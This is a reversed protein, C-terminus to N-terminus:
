SEKSVSAINNALAIMRNRKEERVKEETGTDILKETIVRPNSGQVQELEIIDLMDFDSTSDQGPTITKAKNSDFGIAGDPGYMYQWRKQEDANGRAINSNDIVWIVERGLKSAERQLLDLSALELPMAIGRDRYATAINGMAIFPAENKVPPHLNLNRHGLIDGNKNKAFLRIRLAPKADTPFAKKFIMTEIEIAEGHSTTIHYTPGFQTTADEAVARMEREISDLMEKYDGAMDFLQKADNEIMPRVPNEISM